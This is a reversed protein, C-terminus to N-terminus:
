TTSISPPRSLGLAAFIERQKATFASHFRRTSTGDYLSAMLIESCEYLADKTTLGLPQVSRGITDSFLFKLVHFSIVANTLVGEPMKQNLYNLDRPLFVSYFYDQYTEITLYAELIKEPSWNLNSIICERPESYSLSLPPALGGSSRLVVVKKDEIITSIYGIGNYDLFENGSHLFEEVASANHFFYSFATKPVKCAYNLNEQRLTQVKHLLSPQDTVIVDEASITHLVEDKPDIHFGTPIFSDTTTIQVTRQDRTNEFIEYGIHYIYQINLQVPQQKPFFDNLVSYGNSFLEMALQIVSKNIKERQPVYYTKIFDSFVTSKHEAIMYYSVLAFVGYASEKPTKKYNILNTIFQGFGLDNSINRLLLNIGYSLTPLLKIEETPLSDAIGASISRVLSKVMKMDLNEARGLNAVVHHVCKGKEYKSEILQIYIYTKKHTKVTTRKIWM